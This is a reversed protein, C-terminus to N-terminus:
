VLVRVIGPAVEVHLPLHGVLDGDAMAPLGEPGLIDLERVSSVHVLPHNANRRLVVHVVAPIVRRLPVQDARFLELTGDFPDSDPVVNVGGGIFGSNSVSLVWGPLDCEVGDVRARFAAGRFHAPATVAGWGYAIPGATLRSENALKNAWADLGLSVVGLVLRRNPESDSTLDSVWIGDLARVRDHLTGSSPTGLPALADARVRANSGVGIARCLDNGRGGPLPVLASESGAIGQAVAAVFGDGGLAGVIPAGTGADPHKGASLARAVSAPAEAETVVRVHVHWGGHRLREAIDPAVRLARGGGSISSVLMTMVPQPRTEAM